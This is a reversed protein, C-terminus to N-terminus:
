HMLGKKMLREGIPCESCRRQTCYNRYLFLAGQEDGTTRISDSELLEQEIVEAYKASSRSGLAKWEECLEKARREDRTSAIRAPLIVNLRIALKREEGLLSQYEALESRFSTRKMWFENGIDYHIEENVSFGSHSFYKEALAAALAVRRYPSNAPRIRFFAWDSESLTQVLPYTIQLANWHANLDLLYENVESTFEASQWSLLGSAGFFLAEYISPLNAKSEKKRIEQLLKRPLIEALAKFPERNESYGLADLVREYVKDLLEEQSGTKYRAVLEDLRADGMKALVTRKFKMPVSLNHPFCYLEPARAYRKEFLASWLEKHLFNLNDRLILTPINPSREEADNDLVVHLIVSSYRKDEDHSHDGWHGAEKHLEIDGKIKLGDLVIEASLFDPGGRMTNHTGASLITIPSQDSLKPKSVLFRAHDKWISQLLLESLSDKAAPRM